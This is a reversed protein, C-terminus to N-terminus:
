GFWRINNGNTNHKMGWNPNTGDDVIKSKPVSAEYSSLKTSDISVNSGDIIGLAKAQLVVDKFLTSLEESNSLKSMFRSFASESPVRDLNSKGLAKTIKSLDLRSFILELQTEKQFKLIGEFSFLRQQRIYMTLSKVGKPHNTKESVINSM